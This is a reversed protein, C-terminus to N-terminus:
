VIVGILFWVPGAVALMGLLILLFYDSSQLQNSKNASLKPWHGLTIARGIWWGLTECLWGLGTEWLLWWLARGCMLVFASKRSLMEAFEIM